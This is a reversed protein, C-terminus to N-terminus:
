ESARSQNIFDAIRHADKRVIVRLQDVFHELSQMERAIFLHLVFLTFYKGHPFSQQLVVMDRLGGLLKKLRDDRLRLTCADESPQRMWISLVFQVTVKPSQLYNVKQEVM